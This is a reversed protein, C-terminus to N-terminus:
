EEPFKGLQVAHSLIVAQQMLIFPGPRLNLPKLGNHLNKPIIARVSLVLPGTCVANM